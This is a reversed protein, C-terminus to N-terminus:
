TADDTIDLRYRKGQEKGIAQLVSRLSLAMRGQRGIVKGVDSGISVTVQIVIPENSAPLSVVKVADKDKVIGRVIAEIISCAEFTQPDVIMGTTYPDLVQPVGDIREHLLPGHRRPGM